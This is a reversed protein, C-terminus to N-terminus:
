RDTEKEGGIAARFMELAEAPDFSMSKLMVAVAGVVSSAIEDAVTYDTSVVIWTEGDHEPHQHAVVVSAEGALLRLGMRAALDEEEGPEMDRVRQGQNGQDSM